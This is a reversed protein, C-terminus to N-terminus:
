GVFREAKCAWVKVSGGTRPDTGMAVFADRENLSEAHLTSVLVGAANFCLVDFGFKYESKM